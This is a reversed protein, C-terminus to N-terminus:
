PVARVAEELKQLQRGASADVYVEETEVICTGPPADEKVEIELHEAGHVLSRLYESSATVFQAEHGSVTLKVVRQPYLGEVAKQYIRLFAQDDQSLQADVVKGAIDLALEVLGERYQRLLEERDGDIRQLLTVIRSLTEENEALAQARGDEYGQRFGEEQAVSYAEEARLRAEVAQRELMDRMKATYHSASDVIVKARRRAIEIEEQEPLFAQVPPEAPTEVAPFGSMSCAYGTTDMRVCEGKFLRSLRIM